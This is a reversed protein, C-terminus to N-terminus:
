STRGAIIQEKTATLGAILLEVAQLVEDGTTNQLSTISASAIATNQSTQIGDITAVVPVTVKFTVNVNTGNPNAKASLKAMPRYMPVISTDEVRWVAPDGASTPNSYVSLVTTGSTINPM